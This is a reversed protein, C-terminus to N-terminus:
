SLSTPTHQHLLSATFCCYHLPLAATFCLRCPSASGVLVSVVCVSAFARARERERERERVCVGVRELERWWPGRGSTQTYTQAHRSLYTHTQKDTHTHTDTRHEHSKLAIIYLSYPYLIIRRMLNNREDWTRGSLSFSLLFPPLPLSLPSLVCVCM